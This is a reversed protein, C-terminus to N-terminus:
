KKANHRAKSLFYDELTKLSDKMFVLKGGNLVEYTNLQKVPLLQLNAMNRGAKVINELVEPLILTAKEQLISNKIKLELNKIIKTMKKTKSELKELGSVVKVEDNKLKNTLASFLSLTKM